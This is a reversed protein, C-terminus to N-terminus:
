PTHRPRLVFRNCMCSLPSSGRCRETSAGLVLADALEAVGAPPYMIPPPPPDTSIRLCLSSPQHSPKLVSPVFSSRCLGPAITAFRPTDGSPALLMHAFKRM